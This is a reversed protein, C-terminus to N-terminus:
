VPVGKVYVIYFLIVTLVAAVAIWLSFLVIRITRNKRKKIWGAWKEMLIELVLDVFVEWRGIALGDFRPLPRVILM